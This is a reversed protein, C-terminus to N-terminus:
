PSPRPATLLEGVAAAISKQLCAFTRERDTDSQGSTISVIAAENVPLVVLSCAIEIDGGTSHQMQDESKTTAELYVDEKEIKLLFLSLHVPSSPFSFIVQLDM